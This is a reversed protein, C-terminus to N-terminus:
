NNTWTGYGPGLAEWTLTDVALLCLYDGVAGGSVMGTTSGTTGAVGKYYLTVGSTPVFSIAHAVAHYNGLCIQIGATPTPLDVIYAGTTANWFTASQNPATYPSGSTKVVACQLGAFATTAINTSNDCISQTPASPSGTFTPSATTPFVTGTGSLTGYSVGAVPSIAAGAITTTGTCTAVQVTTPISSYGAGANTLSIVGVPVGGSVTITGSANISAGGGSYTVSQTGNTCGTGGTSYTGGTSVIGVAAVLMPGPAAPATASRQLFYSSFSAANPGLDGTSNLPLSVPVATNGVEYTLGAYGGANGVLLPGAVAGITLGSPLTTSCGLSSLVGSPCGSGLGATQALCAASFLLFAILVKMNSDRRRTKGIRGGSCLKTFEVFHYWAIHLCLAAWPNDRKKSFANTLRILRRMQLRM